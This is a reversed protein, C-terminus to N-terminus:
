QGEQYLELVSIEPPVGFRVPLTSTGIGSSIFTDIGHDYIHGAAYKQGLMTPVYPAGIIPFRCQGGHTHGVIFLSLDPSISLEGTMSLIADPNHSLVIVKGESVSLQGIAKKVEESYDVWNNIQLADITGVLRIPEGNDFITVAENELVQYGIREIENRVKNNGFANDQNGIVAFVGFKGKLGKLNDFVTELPMNLKTRDFTQRSVYDGLLVILDPNQQNTLQVIERIRAETVFNAGGHIDALAVIKFGNLRPTWKKLNIKYVNVVLRSPEVILAWFALFGFFVSLILLGYIFKKRHIKM